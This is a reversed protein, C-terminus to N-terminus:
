LLLLLLLLLPRPPLLLRRLVLLLLLQQQQIYLEWDSIPLQMNDKILHPQLSCAELMLIARRLNRESEDAIRKALLETLVINEKNSISFLIEVIEKHTPAPVRIVLCRSCIAEDMRPLNDCCLILKCSLIYNEMTRRLSYQANKSLRDVEILLLIKFDENNTCKKLNIPKNKAFGM